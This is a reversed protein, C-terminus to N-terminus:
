QSTSTKIPNHNNEIKNESKQGDYIHNPHITVYTLCIICWINSIEQDIVQENWLMSEGIGFKGIKFVESQDLQQNSM